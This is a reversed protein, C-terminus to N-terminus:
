RQTTGPGPVLTVLSAHVSRLAAITPLAALAAYVAIALPMTGAVQFSFVLAGYQWLGLLAFRLAGPSEQDHAVHHVATASIAWGAAIGGSAGAAVGWLPAQLLIAIGAALAVCLASLAALTVQLHVRGALQLPTAQVAQIGVWFLGGLLLARIIPLSPAYAPLWIRLVQEFAPYCLLALGYGSLIVDHLGGFFRRRSAPDLRAGHPLAVRTLTQAAATGVFLASAALAYRAFQPAPVTWSLLVRDVSQALSGAFNAVMVVGGISVLPWVETGSRPVDRRSDLQQLRSAGLLAAFLQSAVYLGLVLPLTREARPIIMLGTLFIASPLAALFGAWRFETGAQLAYSVLTASNAPVATLGLAILISAAPKGRLTLAAILFLMAFAGQSALMWRALSRWEPVIQSTARGVWRLLAGDAVGLHSVGLYAAYVMFVRYLGFTELDLLKPVLFLQFIGIVGTLGV